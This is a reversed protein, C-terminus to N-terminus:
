NKDKLFLPSYIFSFAKVKKSLIKESLEICLVKKTTPKIIVIDSLM